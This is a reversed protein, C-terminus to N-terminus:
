RNLIRKRFERYAEEPNTLGLAVSEMPCPGTNDRNRIGPVTKDATFPIGSATFFDAAPQSIVGTYVSHVGGYVFLMAAAKGIVKDAVVAGKLFGPDEELWLLIPRIGREWSLAPEGNRMLVCSCKERQLLEKAREMIDM